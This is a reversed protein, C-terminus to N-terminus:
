DRLDRLGHQTKRLHGVREQASDELLGTEQASDELLWWGRVLGQPFWWKWSVQVLGRFKWAQSWGRVLGARASVRADKGLRDLFRRRRWQDTTHPSMRHAGWIMTAMRLPRDRHRNKPRSLALVSTLVWSLLRYSLLVLVRALKRAQREM